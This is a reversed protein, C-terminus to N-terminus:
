AKYIHTIKNVNRKKVKRILGRLLGDAVLIINTLKQEPRGRFTTVNFYPKGIPSTKTFYYNSFCLRTKDVVVPSVSHWSTNDTAMVVLKNFKSVFTQQKNKKIGEPWLELNGGNNEHWDPAAYYLLNLARYKTRDANHSNDLHPNLFNNQPMASIGAAYFSRDSELGEIQTIEQVIKLVEEDQFALLLESIIPNYKDINVGIYKNERITSNHKLKDLSPFNNFAAIAIDLPLLDDIYFAKIKNGAFQKALVDKNETLKKAILNSINM